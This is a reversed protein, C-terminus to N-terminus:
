NQIPGLEALPAKGDLFLQIQDRLGEAIDRNIYIHTELCDTGVFLVGVLPDDDLMEIASWLMRQKGFPGGPAGEDTDDPRDLM